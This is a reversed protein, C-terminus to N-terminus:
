FLHIKLDRTFEKLEMVFESFNFEQFAIKSPPLDKLESVFKDRKWVFTFVFFVKFILNCSPSETYVAEGSAVRFLAFGLNCNYIQIESFFFFMGFFFVDGFALNYRFQRIRPAM